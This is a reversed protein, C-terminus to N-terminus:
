PEPSSFSSSDGLLAKTELELLMFPLLPALLIVEQTLASAMLGSM